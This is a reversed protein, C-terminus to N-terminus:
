EYENQWIWIMDMDYGDTDMDTDMTPDLRYAGGRPQGRVAAMPRHLPRRVRREIPRRPGVGELSWRLYTSSDHTLMMNYGTYM